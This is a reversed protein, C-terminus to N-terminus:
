EYGNLTTNAQSFLVESDGYYRLKFWLVGSLM